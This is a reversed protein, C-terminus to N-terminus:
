RLVGPDEPRLISIIRNLDQVSAFEILVKGKQKGLQVKVRTDLSDALRSALDDLAEIRDGARPARPRKSEPAGTWMTVAEETARVSMGEAVIRTALRDMSEEDPLGLLARAHGASLVGAAVIWPRHRPDRHVVGREHAYDVARCVQVFATLLRRRSPTDEGGGTRADSLIPELSRARIRKMTFWPGAPDALAVDYVPVISPHELRAQVLAERVFRAHGRTREGLDGRIRKLAVDRGIVEERCLAVAGMGGVGLVASSRYRSALEPSGGGPAVGALRADEQRLTADDSPQPAITPELPEDPSRHQM